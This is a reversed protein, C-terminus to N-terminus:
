TSIIIKHMVAVLSRKKGRRRVLRQYYANLYTNRTRAAAAAADGLAGQLWRNGHTTPAPHTALGSQNNGPAVGTWSALMAASAFRTM